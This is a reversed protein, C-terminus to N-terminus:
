VDETLDSRWGMEDQTPWRVTLGGHSALREEAHIGDHEPAIGQKAWNVNRLVSELYDASMSAIAIPIGLELAASALGSDRENRLPQVGFPGAVTAFGPELEWGAVRTGGFRNMGRPMAGRSLTAAAEPHGLGYVVGAADARLLIASLELYDEESLTNEGPDWALLTPEIKPKRATGWRSAIAWRKAPLERRSWLSRAYVATRGAQGVATQLIAPRSSPGRWSKRGVDYTGKAEAIVLGRSDLGIWDAELGRGPPDKVISFRTGEFKRKARELPVLVRVGEHSTLYARAMYRGLLSSYAIRADRGVGPGREVWRLDRGPVLMSEFLDTWISAMHPSITVFTERAAAQGLKALHVYHCKGVVQPNGLGGRRLWVRRGTSSTTTSRTTM